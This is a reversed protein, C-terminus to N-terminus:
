EEQIADDSSSVPQAAAPGADERLGDLQAQYEEFQQTFDKSLDSLTPGTQAPVQVLVHRRFLVFWAGALAGAVLVVGIVLQSRPQM